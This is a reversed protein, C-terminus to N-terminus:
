AAIKIFATFEGDALPKGTSPDDSNPGLLRIYFYDQGYAGGTEYKVGWTTSNDYGGLFVGDQKTGSISHEFIVPDSGSVEYILTADYPYPSIQLQQWTYSSVDTAVLSQLQETGSSSDCRVANKAVDNETPFTIYGFRISDTGRVYNSTDGFGEISSNGSDVIQLLWPGASSSSADYGPYGSCNSSSIPTAVVDDPVATGLPCLFSWVALLSAAAKFTYMAM